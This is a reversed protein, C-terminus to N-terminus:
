SMDRWLMGRKPTSSEILGLLRNKAPLSCRSKPHFPGFAQDRPLTTISTPILSSLDGMIPPCKRHSVYLCLAAIDVGLLELRWFVHRLSLTEPAMWTHIARSAHRSACQWHDRRRQSWSRFYWISDLHLRISYRANQDHTTAFQQMAQDREATARGLDLERSESHHRQHNDSIQYFNSLSSSAFQNHRWIIM